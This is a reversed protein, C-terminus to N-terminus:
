KAAYQIEIVPSGSVSKVWMEKNTLRLIQMTDAESGSASSLTKIQEKDSIFEWTGNDTDTAGGFTSTATYSSTYTGDKENTVTESAIFARYDSTKDVGDELYKEIMWDGAVRAKKSRISLAPGDEYKGCSALTFGGILLAAVAIRIMNKM